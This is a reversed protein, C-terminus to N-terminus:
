TSELRLFHLRGSAEGAVITVGDPAVACCKFGSDGTFTAMVNRNFLNWVKITNDGSASIINKGDLTVAVDNVSDGHSTLTFLYEKKIFDWVKLSKDSSASIFQNSKPIIAVANVPARHGKFSSESDSNFRFIVGTQLDWIKISSDLSGFIVRTSDPTFTVSKIQDTSGSVMIARGVQETNNEQEGSEKLKGNETLFVNDTNVYTIFNSVEEGTERNLVIFFCCDDSVFIIWKRDSTINVCFPYRYLALKEGTPLYQIDCKLNQNLIKSYNNQHNFTELKGDATLFVDSVCDNITITSVKKWGPSTYVTINNNEISVIWKGDSTCALKSYLALQSYKTFTLKEKTNLYWINSTEQSLFSIQQKSNDTSVTNLLEKTTDLSLINEVTVCDWIKLIKDSSGSSFIKKGDSSVALASVLDSHANITRHRQTILNSIFSFLGQKEYLDWIKITKDSSGSIVQKGSPTIAIANVSANHGALTFVEKGTDLNWVKLNKDESGSIAQQGDPTIAVTNVCASHYNFTTTEKHTELNWVKLTKDSSASIIQKNDPTVAIANVTQSHGSLTIVEEGTKLSCIKINNDDNVYIVRQADTTITALSILDYNGDSTFLKKETELKGTELNWICVKNNSSASIVLKGDQSAIATIVSSTHGTFTLLEKGTELSWVKLINGSDGSIVRKGDLTVIVTNVLSQHGSFTYIEAKTVLDWVKFINYDDGSIFQKNNPAIVITNIYGRHGNFKLLEEGTELNWVKLTKDSSGSIIRMGDTTVALARVSTSHATFTLLLEGTDLNWVKLTGDDSGSIVQKGDSTVAVVRVAGYHGTLTRLLAGGPLTLSATFPRLWPKTQNQKAQQLLAQIEPIEFCQLRGWLQGALQTKDENLIHASLQLAGQILKLVKINNEHFDPDNLIEANDLLDYDKILAQVGFEDHSIKVIIFDFNTLIKYLKGLQGTKAKSSPDDLFLRQQSPSWKILKQALKSM